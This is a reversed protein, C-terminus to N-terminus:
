KGCSKTIKIKTSSFTQSDPFPHLFLPWASRTQSLVHPVFASFLSDLAVVAPSFVTISAPSLKGIIVVPLPKFGSKNQPRTLLAHMKTDPLM